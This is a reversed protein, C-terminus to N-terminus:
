ACGALMRLVDQLCVQPGCIRLVGALMRPVDQLCGLCM